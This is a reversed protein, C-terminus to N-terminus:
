GVVGVAYKRANQNWPPRFAPAPMAPTLRRTVDVQSRDNVNSTRKANSGERKRKVRQHQPTSGYHIPAANTGFPPPPAGNRPM